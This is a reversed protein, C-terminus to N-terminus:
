SSTSDKCKQYAKMNFDKLEDLTFSYKGKKLTNEVLFQFYCTDKYAETNMLFEFSEEDFEVKTLKGNSYVGECSPGGLASPPLELYPAFEIPTLGYLHTFPIQKKYTLVNNTLTAELIHGECRDGSDITDIHHLKDHDYKIVELSGFQGTGGTNYHCLILHYIPTELNQFHITGLYKYYIYGREPYKDWPFGGEPVDYGLFDRGNGHDKGENKATYKQCPDNALDIPEAHLLNYICAPEIPKGQFQFKSPVLVQVESAMLPTLMFLM